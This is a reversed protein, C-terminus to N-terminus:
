KIYDEYLANYVDQNVYNVNFAVCMIKIIDEIDKYGKKNLETYISSYLDNNYKNKEFEENDLKM